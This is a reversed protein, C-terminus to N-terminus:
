DNEISSDNQNQSDDSPVKKKKQALITMNVPYVRLYRIFFFTFSDRYWVM